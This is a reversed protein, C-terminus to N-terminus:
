RKKKNAADASVLIPQSFHLISLKLPKQFVQGM